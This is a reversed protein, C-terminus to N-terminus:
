SEAPMHFRPKLGLFFSVIDGFRVLLHLHFAIEFAHGTRIAATDGGFSLDKRICYLYRLAEEMVWTQWRTREEAQDNLPLTEACHPV